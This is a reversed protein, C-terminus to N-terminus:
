RFGDESIVAVASSTGTLDSSRLVVDTTDAEGILCLDCAHADEGAWDCIYIFGCCEVIAEVIDVNIRTTPSGGIVALGHLTWAVNNVFSENVAHLITSM